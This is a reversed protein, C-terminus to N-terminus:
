QTQRAVNEDDPNQDPIHYAVEAKYPVRSGIHAYACLLGENASEGELGPTLEAYFLM